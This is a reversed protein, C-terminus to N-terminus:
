HALLLPIRAKDLIGRTVGGFINERLRSHGYAGIVLCSAGFNAAADLLTDSVPVPAGPLEELTSEIGHRALWAAAETPPLDKGDIEERVVALKVSSAKRLLPLAAKLAACSEPSGDWGVLVKGSCEFGRSTEPVALVPARMNVVVDAPGFGSHDSDESTGPLSMVVLDSLWSHDAVMAAPSGVRSLWDWPVDEEKLRAEFGAQEEKQQERIQEVSQALLYTVGYPEVSALQELPAIHLCTLHGDFCRAVDLAAQFRAEMGNDRLIPTLISKM